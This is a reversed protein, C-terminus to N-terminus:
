ASSTTRTRRADAWWSGVLIVAGAWAAGLLWGALVDSVYHVRGFGAALAAVVAFGVIVAVAAAEDVSM